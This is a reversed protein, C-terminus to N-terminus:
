QNAPLQYNINKAKSHALKGGYNGAQLAFYVGALSLVFLLIIIKFNLKNKVIMYVRVILLAAFYWVTLNAFTQHSNFFTLSEKDLNGSALYAQNGSLVALLAGIVGITLFLLAARSYFDKKSILFLLDMLPYLTLFAIPFHVIKPHLNALFEM